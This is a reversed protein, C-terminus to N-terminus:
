LTALAPPTKPGSAHFMSTGKGADAVDFRTGSKEKGVVADRALCGGGRRHRLERGREHESERRGRERARGVVHDEPPLEEYGVGRSVRAPPLDDYGGLLSRARVEQDAIRRDHTRRRGDEGVAPVSRLLGKRQRRDSPPRDGAPECVRSPREAPRNALDGDLPVGATGEGEREGRDRASSRERDHRGGRTVRAADDEVHRAPITVAHGEATRGAPDLAAVVGM